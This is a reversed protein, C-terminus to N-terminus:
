GPTGLYGTIFLPWCALLEGSVVRGESVTANAWVKVSVPESPIIYTEVLYNQAVPSLWDEFVMNFAYFAGCENTSFSNWVYDMDCITVFVDAEEPCCAGFIVMPESSYIEWDGQNNWYWAETEIIAPYHNGQYDGIVLQAISGPLGMPGIQGMPGAPGPLGTEGKPGQPGQPGAPGAPGAPGPDGESRGQPGPPGDEGKPGTPGVPGQPGAPGQPGQCAALPVLLLSIVILFAIIAGIKKM